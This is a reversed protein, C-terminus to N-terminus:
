LAVPLVGTAKEVALSSTTISSATADIKDVLKRIDEANEVSTM